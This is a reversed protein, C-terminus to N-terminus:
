SPAAGSTRARRPPPGAAAASGRGRPRRQAQRGGPAPLRQSVGPHASGGGRAGRKSMRISRAASAALRSRPRLPGGCEKRRRGRCADRNAARLRGFGRGPQTGTCCPRRTSGGSGRHAPSITRRRSPRSWAGQPADVILGSVPVKHHTSTFAPFLCRTTRRRSPRSWRCRSGSSGFGPPGCRRSRASPPSRSSRVRPTLATHPAGSAPGPGGRRPVGAPPRVCEIVTVVGRSGNAVGRAMTLNPRVVVRAGVALAVTRPTAGAVGNRRRSTKRSVRMGVWASAAQAEAVTLGRGPTDPLSSGDPRPPQKGLAGHADLVAPRRGRGESHLAQPAHLRRLHRGPPSAPGRRRVGDSRMADYEHFVAALARRFEEQSGLGPARESWARLRSALVPTSLAPRLTSLAVALEPDGERRKVIPPRIRAAGRLVASDFAQSGDDVVMRAATHPDGPGLLGALACAAAAADLSLV